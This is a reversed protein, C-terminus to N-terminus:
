AKRAMGRLGELRAAALGPLADLAYFPGSGEIVLSAAINGYLAAELPEYSSRFGALFGGCFADGAGTPDIIRSPYAPVMWHIRRNHDYVYQGRGRRKIVVIECGWKGIAEAMEWIDSTRGEFLARLKEESTVVATIGKVLNQFDDWFVPNMYSAAPDVTITTVQGQRLLPPLLSHSLFDLPCLHAATAEMYANPIETMRITQNTVQSRSDPQIVAPTYGLLSKPFQLNLRAFHAVPADRHRTEQDSYAMFSRLDISEPLIRIGHCDFGFQTLKLLWDQPFDEGVRGILGVGSEWIATGVAAYPLSGGLVDILPIGSPTIIFERRLSGAIIYRLIPPSDM